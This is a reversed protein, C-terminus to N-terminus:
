LLNYNELIRDLQTEDTILVPRPKSGDAKGVIGTAELQDMLRGARNYGIAFKRQILSTLGSQNAVILRAAEVFMPDFKGMEVGGEVPGSENEDFYEPLPYADTYGQQRSIYQCLANVEPTDVFACTLRVPDSGTRYLMDGPLSSLMEAGNCDMIVQSDIMEPVKFSIRTSFNTKVESPLVDNTPRISSIVLHIGTVRAFKTLKSLQQAMQEENGMALTNYSDIVVVIYPLYRHGKAPNLLRRTFLYNYDQVSRSNADKFLKIRSEMETCLSYLTNIADNSNTIVANTGSLSALFHRKIIEYIGFEVGYPDMLVFKVEAPHKKFLLSTIIVNLAVSKGKGTSGSILINPSKALDFVFTDNTQTKGLAIPLEMNSESFSRSSLVSEMSVIHPRQNPVVIGITGKGPVSLILNIYDVGLSFAIDEELGSLKSRHTGPALTIEYLTTIPGATAKITELEIGFDLLVRIIRNKNTELEKEDISTADNDYHKLLDLCPYKYNALDLKPDYPESDPSFSFSEVEPKTVSITRTAAIIEKKIEAIKEPTIESDKKTPQSDKKYIGEDASYDIDQSKSRGSGPVKDRSYLGTGPIGTNVYTGNPGMTISAGKTGVTASIGSKSFNIKFGPFLKISKRFRWGM